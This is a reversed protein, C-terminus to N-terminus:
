KDLVVVPQLPKKVRLATKVIPVHSPITVKVQSLKVPNCTRFVSTKSFYSSRRSPAKSKAKLQTTKRQSGTHGMIMVMMVMIMVIMLDIKSQCKRGSHEEIEGKYKTLPKKAILRM